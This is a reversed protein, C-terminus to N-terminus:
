TPLGHLDRKLVLRPPQGPTQRADTTEYGRKTIRLDSYEGHVKLGEDFRESVFMRGLAEGGGKHREPMVFLFRPLAGVLYHLIFRAPYAGGDM